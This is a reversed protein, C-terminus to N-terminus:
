MDPFKDNVMLIKRNNQLTNILSCVEMKMAIIIFVPEGMKVIDGVTVCLKAMVGPMPAVAVDGGTAGVDEAEMSMFKPLPLSFQYTGDQLDCVMLLGDDEPDFLQPLFHQKLDINM